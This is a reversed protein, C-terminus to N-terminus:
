SRETRADGERKDTLGMERESISTSFGRRCAPSSLASPDYDQM